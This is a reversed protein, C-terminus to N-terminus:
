GTQTVLWSIVSLRVVVDSGAEQRGTEKILLPYLECAACCLHYETQGPIVNCTIYNLLHNTCDSGFM